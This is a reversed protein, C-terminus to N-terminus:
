YYTFSEDLEEEPESMDEDMEYDEQSEQSEQSEVMGLAEDLEDWVSGYNEDLYEGHDMAEDLSHDFEPAPTRCERFAAPYTDEDSEYDFTSPVPPWEPDPITAQFSDVTESDLYPAKPDLAVLFEPHVIPHILLPYLGLKPSLALRPFYKVSDEQRTAEILDDPSLYLVVSNFHFMSRSAATIDAPSWPHKPLFHLHICNPNPLFDTIKTRFDSPSPVDLGNLFLKLPQFTSPNNLGDRFRREIMPILHYLGDLDEGTIELYQLSNAELDRLACPCISSCAVRPAREVRRSLFPTAVALNKLNPASILFDIPEPEEWYYLDLNGLILTSLNTFATNFIEQALFFQNFYLARHIQLTTVADPHPGYEAARFDVGSMTLSELGKAGELTYRPYIQSPWMRGRPKWPTEISFSRLSPFSHHRLPELLATAGPSDYIFVNMAKVRDFYYAREQVKQSLFSVVAPASKAGISVVTLDVLLPSSRELFVDFYLQSRGYVHVDGWIWPQSLAIARWNSCTHSLFVPRRRRIDKHSKDTLANNPLRPSTVFHYFIKLIIEVPLDTIGSHTQAQLTAM